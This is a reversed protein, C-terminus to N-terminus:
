RSRQSVMTFNQDPMRNYVRIWTTQNEKLHIPPGPFTGNIVVSRRTQCDIRVDEETAELVYDPTFCDDHLAAETLGTMWSAVVALLLARPWGQLWRGGAARSSIM